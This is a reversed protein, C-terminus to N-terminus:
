SLLKNAFGKLTNVKKIILNLDFVKDAEKTESLKKELQTLLDNISQFYADVKYNKGESREYAVHGLKNYMNEVWHEAGHMTLPSHMSEDFVHTRKEMMVTSQGGYMPVNDQAGKYPMEQARNYYPVEQGGKLYFTAPVDTVQGGYLPVNDQRSRYNLVTIPM